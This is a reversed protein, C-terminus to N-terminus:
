GILILYHGARSNAVLSVPIAPDMWVFVEVTAKATVSESFIIRSQFVINAEDSCQHLLYFAWHLSPHFTTTIRNYEFGANDPTLTHSHQDQEDDLSHNKRRSPVAVVLVSTALTVRGCCRHTALSCYFNLCCIHM